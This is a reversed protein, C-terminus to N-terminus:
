GSSGTESHFGSVRVVTLLCVLFQISLLAISPLDKFKIDSNRSVFTDFQIMALWILWPLFMIWLRAAEGSNKGTLWLLGWVFVISTIITINNTTFQRMRSTLDEQRYSRYLANWCAAVALIAVPWGAAFSLELPNFLLWKWYTRSYQQYFGAHNRYNLLWVNFMNVNATYCLWISPVIFGCGAAAVSRWRRFGIEESQNSEPADSVSRPGNAWPFIWTKGLTMLAAMLLVPLFALSCLLGIWTVIGAFFALVHSRKDWASLWLWLIILGYLPFMADSKPIFVAVAPLAPWLSAGIWAAQISCTRRILGFLPIVTLSASLMVLLTALWLVQRDAPLLQRPVARRLNTAAIVDMAERFSAPQTADLISRLGPSSNCLAILGHFALFLGPPHTGTHLVDGQRMLEEYGALLEISGPQDYRARTFYGSSNAYYLVFAAKGLRNKVPACEQVIWFWAFGLTVLGLLWASLQLQLFPRDISGKLRYCGLRVFAIYLAAAVAAGALNWLLDPEAPIRDWTWEGPIGLALSTLWLV